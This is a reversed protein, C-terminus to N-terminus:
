KKAKVGELVYGLKNMLSKVNDDPSNSLTKFTQIDEKSFVADQNEEVEFTVGEQHKEVDGVIKYGEPRVAKGLAKKVEDHDLTMRMKIKM